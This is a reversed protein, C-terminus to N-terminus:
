QTALTTVTHGGVGGAAVRRLRSQVGNGDRRFDHPDISRWGGGFSWPRRPPTGATCLRNLQLLLFELGPSRHGTSM